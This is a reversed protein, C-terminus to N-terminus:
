DNCNLDIELLQIYISVQFNALGFQVINIMGNILGKAIYFNTTLSYKHLTQDYVFTRLKELNFFYNFFFQEEEYQEDNPNIQCSNMTAM